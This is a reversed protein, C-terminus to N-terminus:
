DELETLRRDFHHAAIVFRERLYFRHADHRHVGSDLDLLTCGAERARRELDRLLARGVGNSRGDATTVLDDVTLKRL